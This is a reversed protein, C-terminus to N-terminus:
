IEHIYKEENSILIFLKSKSTIYKVAADSAYDRPSQKLQGLDAVVYIAGYHNIGVFDFSERM